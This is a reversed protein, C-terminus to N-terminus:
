KRTKKGARSRRRRALRSEREVGADNENSEL